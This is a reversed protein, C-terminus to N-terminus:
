RRPSVPFGVGPDARFQARCPEAMQWLRHLDRAAAEERDLAARYSLYRDDHNRQTSQSWAHLAQGSDTEAALWGLYADDLLRVGIEAVDRRADPTSSTNDRQPNM